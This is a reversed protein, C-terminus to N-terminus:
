LISYGIVFITDFHWVSSVNMFVQARVIVANCDSIESSFAPHHYSM